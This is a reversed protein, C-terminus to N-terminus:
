KKKHLFKSRYKFKDGNKKFNKFNLFFDSNKFDKEIINFRKFFVFPFFLFSGDSYVYLSKSKKLNLNMNDISKELFM